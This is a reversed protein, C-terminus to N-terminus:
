DGMTVVIHTDARKQKHCLSVNTSCHLSKYMGDINLALISAFQTLIEGQDIRPFVLIM